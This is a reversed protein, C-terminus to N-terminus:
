TTRRRSQRVGRLLEWLVAYHHRTEHDAKELAQQHAEM